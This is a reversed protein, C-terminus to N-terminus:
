RSVEWLFCAVKLLLWSLGCWAVFIAAVLMSAVLRYEM